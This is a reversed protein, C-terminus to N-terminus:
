RDKVGDFQKEFLMQKLNVRDEDVFIDVSSDGVIGLSDADTFDKNAKFVDAHLQRIFLDRSDRLNLLYSVPDLVVAIVM